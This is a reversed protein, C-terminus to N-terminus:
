RTLKRQCPDGGISIIHASGVVYSALPTDEARRHVVRKHESPRCVICLKLYACRSAVKVNEHIRAGSIEPDPERAARCIVTAAYAKVVEDREERICLSM